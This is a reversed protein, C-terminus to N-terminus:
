KGNGDCMEVRQSPDRIYRTFWRLAASDFGYYALKSILLTVNITEFASSFDLLTLM